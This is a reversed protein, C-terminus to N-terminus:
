LMDNAPKTDVVIKATEKITNVVAKALAIKADWWEQNRGNLIAVHSDKGPADTLFKTFYEDCLSQDCTIETVTFSTPTKEYYCKMLQKAGVNLSFFKKQTGVDRGEDIVVGHQRLFCATFGNPLWGNQLPNSKAGAKLIKETKEDPNVFMEPMEVKIGFLRNATTYGSNDTTHAVKEFAAVGEEKRYIAAIPTANNQFKGLLPIFKDKVFYGLTYHFSVIWQIFLSKTSQYAM